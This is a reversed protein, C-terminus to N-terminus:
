ALGKAKELMALFATEDNANIQAAITSGGLTFNVAITKGNAESNSVPRPTPNPAPPKLRASASPPLAASGGFNSDASRKDQSYLYQEAAKLVAASLTSGGYKGQGPNSYYPINGYADAFENAIKKAAELDDVGAQQLFGIIGIRSGLDNRATIREGKDNTSFGDKDRNLRKDEDDKRKKDEDKSTRGSNIRARDAAAAAREAATQLTTFDGAAGKVADGLSYVSKAGKDMNEIISKGTEDTVIKLGYEAAKAELFSNAVGGNADISAQAYKKFAEKLQSFSATGSSELKTFAEQYNKYVRQAEEKTQLGFVKFAEAVSNVGPKLEDLKARAKELGLVLDDGTVKGTRGLEQWLRILEQIEVPNKAKELMGTLADKLLNSANIGAKELGEFNGALGLLAAENEKFGKTLGVLSNGLDTGLAKTTAATFDLVREKVYDASAGARELDGIFSKQFQALDTANLKAIAGPLDKAINDAVTKNKAAVTALSLGLDEASRAIPPLTVGSSKALSNITDKVDNVSKSTDVFAQGNAQAFVRVEDGVASTAAGIGAVGKAASGAAPAIEGIGTAAGAFAGATAAGAKEATPAIGGVAIAASAAERGAYTLSEAAKNAASAAQAALNKSRTYASEYYEDTKEAATKAGSQMDEFAKVGKSSFDAVAKEAKSFASTASAALDEAMKKFKDGGLAEPLIKSAGSAIAAFFTYVSGTTTLFAIEIAAVGDRILGLIIQVRDLVYSAVSFEKTKETVGGFSAGVSNVLSSLTELTDAVTGITKFLDGFLGKVTNYLNSFSQQVEKVKAPDLSAIAARIEKITAALSKFISSAGETVGIKGLDNLLLNFENRLLNIQGNLTEANKAADASFSKQLAPGFAALFRTSDLGKEVLDNLESVTVGMSDAAIKMAPPLREGLQGRLEEMSVKGKGAIQSLALFVGNTEDASLGMTAAAQSVGLFVDRTGQGELTTGKTAAALKAYGGAAGILDLGLENATKKIFGFEANALKANGVSFELQKNVAQFQISTDIIAKVGQSIGALGLTVGALGAASAAIGGIGKSANVSTSSVGNLENRLESIKASAAATVRAVEDAPARTNKKFENLSRTIEAIEQRLTGGSKINLTEYIARSADQTSQTLRSMAASASAQFRQYSASADGVSRTLQAVKERAATIDTPTAKAATLAQLEAKARTLEARLEAMAQKGAAGVQKLQQTSLEAGGKLGDLEKTTLKLADVIGRADNAQFIKKLDVSARETAASLDQSEKRISATAASYNSKAQSINTNFAQTIAELVVSFKLSGQTM